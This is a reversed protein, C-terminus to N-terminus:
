TLKIGRSPYDVDSNKTTVCKPLLGAIIPNIADLLLVERYRCFMFSVPYKVDFGDSFIYYSIRM